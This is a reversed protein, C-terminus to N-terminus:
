IVEGLLVSLEGLFEGEQLLVVVLKLILQCGLLMVVVEGKLFQLFGGVSQALCLFGVLLHGSLELGLM